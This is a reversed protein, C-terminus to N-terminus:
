APGPKTPNPAPKTLMQAATQEAEGVAAAVAAASETRLTAVDKLELAQLAAIAATAVAVHDAATADNAQLAAVAAQLAPVAAQVSQVVPYLDSVARQCFALTAADGATMDNVGNAVPAPLAPAVPASVTNAAIPIVVGAIYAPNFQSLPYAIDRAGWPNATYVNAADQGYVVIYHENPGSRDPNAYNNDHILAIVLSDANSFGGSIISTGVIGFHILLAQVEQIDTYSYHQALVDQVSVNHGLHQLVMAVCAEGCDTSGAPILPRQDILPAFSM